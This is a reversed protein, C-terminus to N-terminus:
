GRGGSEGSVDDGQSVVSTVGGSEDSVDDGWGRSVMSTM